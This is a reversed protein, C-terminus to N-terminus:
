RLEYVKLLGEFYSQLDRIRNLTSVVSKIHLRDAHLEIFYTILKCKDIYEQCQEKTM